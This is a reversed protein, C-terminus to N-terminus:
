YYVVRSKYSSRIPGPPMYGTDWDAEKTFWVEVDGAYWSRPKGASNCIRWKRDVEITYDDNLQYTVVGWYPEYYRGFRRAVQTQTMGNTISRYETTTVCGPTGAYADAPAAVALPALGVVAVAAASAVTRNFKLLSIGGLAYSLRAGSSRTQGL